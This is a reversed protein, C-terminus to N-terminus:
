IKLKMITEYEKKRNNSTHFKNFSKKNFEETLEETTVIGPHFLIELSSNKAKKIFDNILIDVIKKDMNGSLIVGFLSQYNIKKNRLIKKKNKSLTNLIIHCLINRINYLHHKKLNKLYPTTYEEPIRIYEVKYNNEEIVEILSKFVIPIMHTHQHSDIRLNSIHPKLTEIQNKIELKLEKKIENYEFPNYSLLFLQIWSLKFYGKENVLHKVEKKNSISQGELFNLHVSIDINTKEKKLLRMSENFCKMNPIISISNLKNHQICKIIDKSSNISLAFDDAHIDINKM